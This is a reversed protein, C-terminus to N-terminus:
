RILRRVEVDESALLVDRVADYNYIAARQSGGSPKVRTGYLDSERLQAVVWAHPVRELGWSLLVKTWEKAATEVDGHEFATLAEYTVSQVDVFGHRTLLDRDLSQESLM